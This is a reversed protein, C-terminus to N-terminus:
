EFSNNLKKLEAVAAEKLLPNRSTALMQLKKLSKKDNIAGLAWICKKALPIPEDDYKSEDLLAVSFLTDISNIDKLEELYEAIDEQSSHWNEELLKCFLDTYKNNLGDTESAILSCELLLDNKQFRAENILEILSDTYQHKRCPIILKIDPALPRNIKAIEKLQLAVNMM